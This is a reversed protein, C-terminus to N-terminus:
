LRHTEWRLPPQVVGPERGMYAGERSASDVVEFGAIQDNYYTVHKDNEVVLLKLHYCGSNLLNAPVACVAKYVGNEHPFTKSWTTLVVVGQENLLHYTLHLNRGGQLVWYDTEINVPTQMTIIGDSSSGGPNVAVRKIRLIKNGPANEHSTWEKHRDGGSFSRLYESIITTSSDDHALLGDKLLLARPCLSQVAVMNHSVFLVTRGETAVNGMKGLCKTQFAADGVALVEDVILIDPELYAAVAFALRVRMGSSYRKVPTDIFKEVESFAVIEDFKRDVEKKSMGLITGNLYTNERGTLDPHFGTGVELLSSVRGHITARGSTPETIRALIKLLTSKGAGNRGIIGVAEGHKVQFSVDKLAWIVDSPPAESSVVSLQGGVASKNDKPGHDTTQPRHDLEEFRSLKRVNRFNDFPARLLATFAGVLTEHQQEKLGIRYAKSLSEVRIAIDNSM